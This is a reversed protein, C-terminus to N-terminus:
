IFSKFHFLRNRLLALSYEFRDIKIGQGYSIKLLKAHRIIGEKQMSNFLINKITLQLYEQFKESEILKNLTEESIEKKYNKFETFFTEISKPAFILPLLNAFTPNQTINYAIQVMQNDM